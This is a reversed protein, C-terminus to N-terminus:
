ASPRVQDAGSSRKDAIRRSASAASTSTDSTLCSGNSVVLGRLREPQGEAYRAEFAVTRDEVLGVDALGQRIGRLTEGDSGEAGFGSTAWGFARVQAKRQRLQLKRPPRSRGRQRAV